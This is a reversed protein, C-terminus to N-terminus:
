AIGREAFPPSGLPRAQVGARAAAGFCAAFVILESLLLGLISWAPTAILLLAAVGACGAVASGASLVALFRFDQAAELFVRAPAYTLSLTSVAWLLLTILALPADAFRGAFLQADIAGHVLALLAGYLLCGFLILGSALRVLRKAPAAARRALHGAIEPQVMNVLAAAPLRLPAFLILVAAIPAYAEPGALLAVLLTQGQGQLNTTTVGVLSWGLKDRLAGYRRRAHPGLDIRVPERLLLLVTAIGIAHALALAAFVGELQALGEGRTLLLALLTGSLAFALDGLGSEVPRRKAFLALRLYSRLCWAAVFLGAAWAPVQAPMQPVILVALAVGLGLLGSVVLAGSGFTVEYARATRRGHRGPVFTAAPVGALARVYPLGIGGVLFIIAFVGYDHQSLMRVLAVNLGFHFASQVVEGGLMVVFRRVLGDGAFKRVLRRGARGREGCALPGQAGDLRAPRPPLRRHPPTSSRTEEPIAGRGEGKPSVADIRASSGHDGDRSAAENLGYGPTPPSASPGSPDDAFRNM